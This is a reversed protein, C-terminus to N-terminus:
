RCLARCLYPRISHAAGGNTAPAGAAQTCAEDFEQQDHELRTQRTAFAGLPRKHHQGNLLDEPRIPDTPRFRGAGIASNGRDTPAM